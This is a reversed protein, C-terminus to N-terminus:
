TAPAVIKWSILLLPTSSGSSGKVTVEDVPSNVRGLTTASEVAGSLIILPKSIPVLSGIIVVKPAGLVPEPDIIAEGKPDIAETSWASFGSTPKAAVSSRTAVKIPILESDWADSSIKLSSARDFISLTSSATLPAAFSTNWTLWNAM